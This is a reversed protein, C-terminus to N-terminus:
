EPIIGSYSRSESNGFNNGYLERLGLLFYQPLFTWAIIYTFDSFLIFDKVNVVGYELFCIKKKTIYNNLKTSFGQFGHFKEGEFSKVTAVYYFKPISFIPLYLAMCRDKGAAIM